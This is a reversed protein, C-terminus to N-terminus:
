GHRHGLGSRPLIVAALTPDGLYLALGTPVLECGGPRLELPQELCARLDVGASGDTARAPLPIDRGLRPNMIKLQVAPGTATARADEAASRPRRRPTPRM